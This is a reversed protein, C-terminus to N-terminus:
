RVLIGWFCLRDPVRRRHCGLPHTDAPVPILPEMAEWVVDVM